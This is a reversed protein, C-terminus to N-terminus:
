LLGLAKLAAEGVIPMAADIVQGMATKAVGWLADTSNSSQGASLAAQYDSDADQVLALAPAVKAQLAQAKDPYEASLKAVSENLATVSLDLVQGASATASTAVPAVVTAAAPTADQGQGPAAPATTGSCAGLAAVLIFLLSFVILPHKFSKV